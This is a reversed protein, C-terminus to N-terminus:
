DDSTCCYLLFLASWHKHVIGVTEPPKAGFGWRPDSLEKALAWFDRM